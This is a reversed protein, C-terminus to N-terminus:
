DLKSLCVEWWRHYKNGHWATRKGSQWGKPIYNLEKIWAPSARIVASVVLYDTRIKQGYGWRLWCEAWESGASLLVTTHIVTHQWSFTRSSHEESARRGGCSVWHHCFAGPGHMFVPVNQMTISIFRHPTKRSILVQLELFVLDLSDLTPWCKVNTSM